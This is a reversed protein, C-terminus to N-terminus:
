EEASPRHPFPKRLDQDEDFHPDSYIWVTGQRHWHDFCKYLGAIM